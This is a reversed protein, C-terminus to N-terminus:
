RREERGDLGAQAAVLRDRREAARIAIDHMLFALRSRCWPQGSHPDYASPMAFGAPAHADMGLRRATAVCRWLHDGFAVIGVVGLAAAGGALAAARRVTDDTNLYLPEARADRDPYIPVVRAGPAQSQLAEAVEWSAYVVARTAQQLRAVVEAIAENVPGPSRNGSPQMRNGFTFALIASIRRPEIEPARWALADEQLLGALETAVAPDGLEASLLAALAAQLKRSEQAAARRM